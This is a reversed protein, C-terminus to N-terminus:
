TAEHAESDHDIKINKIEKKPLKMSGNVHIGKTQIRRDLRFRNVRLRGCAAHHGQVAFNSSEESGSGREESVKKRKAPDSESHWM